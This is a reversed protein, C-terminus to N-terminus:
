DRLASEIRQHIAEIEGVGNVRRLISRPEYYGIVPRTNTEYVQLRHRVTEATDDTRGRGALRSQVVDDGATLLVVRDLKGGRRTLLADLGEAQAVTRPFGDLVFGKPSGELREDILGLVTADDVLDGREM